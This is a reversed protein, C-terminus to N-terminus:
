VVVSYCMQSGTYTRYNWLRHEQWWLINDPDGFTTLCSTKIVLISRWYRRTLQLWSYLAQKRKWSLFIMLIIESLIHASKHMPSFTKCKDMTKMYDELTMHQRNQMSLISISLCPNLFFLFYCVILFLFCPLLLSSYHLILIGVGYKLSELWDKAWVLVITLNFKLAFLFKPLAVGM